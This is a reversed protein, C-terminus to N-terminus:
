RRKKKCKKKKAVEASRHKRKKCKKKRTGTAPPPSTVPTPTAVYTKFAFDDAGSASWMFPPAAATFAAGAPYSDVGTGWNWGYYNPSVATSYLVIAYQTGPVVPAPTGFNISVFGGATTVASPAVSRSALVTSGPTGGSVNRIEVSLPETPANFAQLYLDVQDIGGGLGATFTQAWSNLSDIGGGGGSDTQQQDLTGALAVSPALVCAACGLIVTALLASRTTKAVLRTRKRM